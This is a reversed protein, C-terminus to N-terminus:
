ISDLVQIEMQLLKKESLAQRRHSVQVLVHQVMLPTVQEWQSLLMGVSARSPVYGVQRNRFKENVHIHRM